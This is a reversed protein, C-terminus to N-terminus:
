LSLHRPTVTFHDPEAWGGILLLDIWNTEGSLTLNAPCFDCSIKAPGRPISRFAQLGPKLPQTSCSDGILPISRIQNPRKRLHKCGYTPGLERMLVPFLFLFVSSTLSVHFSPTILLFESGNRWQTPQTNSPALWIWPSSSAALRKDRAILSM